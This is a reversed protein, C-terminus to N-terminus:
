AVERVYFGIGYGTIRVPYATDQMVFRLGIWRGTVDVDAWAEGSSDNLMVTFPGYETAQANPSAAARVYVSVQGGVPADYHVIVRRVRKQRYPDGLDFMKTELSMASPSGSREQVVSGSGRVLTPAGEVNSASDWSQGYTNWTYGTLSDWTVSSRREFLAAALGVFDEAGWRSDKLDFLFARNPIQSSGTPIVFVALRETPDLFSFSRHRFKFNLSELIASQVAHGVPEPGALTLRYVMGDIGLFYHADPAEVVSQGSMAGLGAVLRRTQMTFPYGTYDLVYIADTKYAILSDRMQALEVVGSPEDVLLMAGADSGAWAEFDGIASWQIRHPAAETGYPDTWAITLHNQFVEVSRAPPPNGGLDAVNGTGGPWKKIPDKGNTIVLVDKFTAFKAFDDPGGTLAAAGTIDVFSTDSSDRKWIKNRTVAVLATYGDTRRFWCLGMVDSDLTQLDAFGRIRHAAGLRFLANLASAWGRDPVLDKSVGSILGLDPGSM